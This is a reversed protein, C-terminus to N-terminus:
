SNVFCAAPANELQTNRHAARSPAKRVCRGTSSPMNEAQGAQPHPRSPRERGPRGTQPVALMRTADWCLRADIEELHIMARFFQDLGAAGDVTSVYPLPVTKAAFDTSVCPLPVTEATTGCCQADARLVTDTSNLQWM